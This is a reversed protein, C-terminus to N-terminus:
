FPLESDDSLESLKTAGHYDVQNDYDEDYDVDEDNRLKVQDQNDIVWDTGLSTLKCMLSTNFSTDEAKFTQIFGKRVLSRLAISTAITTFGAKGMYDKVVHVYAYDEDTLQEEM